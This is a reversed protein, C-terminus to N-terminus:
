NLIFVVLIRYYCILHIHKINGLHTTARWLVARNESVKLNYKKDARLKFKLLFMLILVFQFLPIKFHLNYNNTINSIHIKQM